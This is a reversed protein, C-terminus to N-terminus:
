SKTVGNRILQIAEMGSDAEVIEVDFNDDIIKALVM